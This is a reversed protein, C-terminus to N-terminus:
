NPNSECTGLYRGDWRQPQLYWGLAEAKFVDINTVARMRKRGEQSLYNPLVGDDTKYYLQDDLLVYKTSKYRLKRTVKQSPNKLQNAIEVRWDNALTESSIIEQFVRYGLANQALQNAEQNQARLIHQLSTLPFGELLKRCKDYYGRLIDDKCEYMGILQNIGLQSDGFIEISEAKVEQFLQLGKLIAEYEAQNNTTM